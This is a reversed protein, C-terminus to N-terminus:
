RRAGPEAHSAHAIRDAVNRGSVRDSEARAADVGGRWGSPASIADNYVEISAPNGCGFRKGILVASVL